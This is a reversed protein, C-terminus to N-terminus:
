LAAAVWGFLAFRRLNDPWDRGTPDAYASGPRDYLAPQDVLYALRGSGPLAALAVRIREASFPTRLRVADAIGSFADLYGPFGPLLLRIDAGQAALAPPLAAAVDGLGGSKVWPYLEATIYLVQM